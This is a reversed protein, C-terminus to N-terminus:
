SHGNGTAGTPCHTRRHNQGRGYFNPHVYRWRRFQYQHTPSSTNLPSFRGSSNDLLIKAQSIQGQTSTISKAPPAIRHTGSASIVYQSIDEYSGQLDWDVEPIIEVQESSSSLSLIISTAVYTSSGSSATATQAGTAGAAVIKDMAYTQVVGGTGNEYRETYGGQPALPIADSMM